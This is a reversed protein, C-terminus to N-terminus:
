GAPTVLAPPPDVFAFFDNPQVLGGTAQHIRKLVDANPRREGHLYRYLASVTVGIRDAFDAVAVDHQILYSRLEM